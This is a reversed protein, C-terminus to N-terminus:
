HQSLSGVHSNNVQELEGQAVVLPAATGPSQVSMALGSFLVQSARCHLFVSHQSAGTLQLLKRQSADFSQSGASPFFVVTQLSRLHEFSCHQPLRGVHVPNVQLASACQVSLGFGEPVVQLPRVHSFLSHQRGGTSQLSCVHPLSQNLLVAFALSTQLSRVHRSSNQQESFHLDNVQPLPKLLLASVVRQAPLHESGSHQTASCVQAVLPIMHAPGQAVTSWDRMFAFEADM